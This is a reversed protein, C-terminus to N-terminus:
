HHSDWTEAEKTADPAVEWAFFIRNVDDASLGLVDAIGKAEAITFTEPHIFRRYLTAVNLGIGDAVQQVSMGREIIAAKLKNTNVM